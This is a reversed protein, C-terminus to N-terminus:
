KVIGIPATLSKGSDPPPMLDDEDRTTLRRVLESHNPKGAIVAHNGSKLESLVSARKTLNLGGKQKDPGHCNSCHEAFIPQIDRSFDVAAVSPFSATLSCRSILVWM